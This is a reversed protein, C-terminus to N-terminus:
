EDYTVEVDNHEAEFKEKLEKEFDGDIKRQRTMIQIDIDVDVESNLDNDEDLRRIISPLDGFDDSFILKLKGQSDSIEVRRMHINGDKKSKYTDAIEKIYLTEKM